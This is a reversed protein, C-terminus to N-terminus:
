IVLLILNGLLLSVIVGILIFFSLPAANKYVPIKRREYRMSKILGRTALRGFKPYKREFYARDSVSMMNTAIMDEEQLQSTSILSVMGAYIKDELIIMSSSSVAILLLLFAGLFTLGSYTYIIAAFVLYAAFLVAGTAKRHAPVAKAKFRSKKNGSLIVYYLPIGVSAAYGTGVFVSLIFPLGLQPVHLIVSGQLPLILSITAFEMVDGAGLIGGRYLLYGLSLIVFAILISNIALQSPYTLTIIFGAAFCVYVFVNPINRNNFVDFVAYIVSIALLFSLPIFEPLM